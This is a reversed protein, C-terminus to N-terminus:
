CPPVVVRRVVRLFAVVTFASTADAFGVVERRVEVVALFVVVRARAAAVPSPAVLPLFVVARVLAFVLVVFLLPLLAALFFVVVLRPLPM